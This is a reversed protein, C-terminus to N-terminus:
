YGEDVIQSRPLEIRGDILGTRSYEKQVKYQFKWLKIIRDNTTLMKLVGSNNNVFEIANIKEDLEISKLHDFEPEHSQMETFYRYDFYRSNKLDVYKFVIVRGGLDGVALYNGTKDFSIASLIDTKSINNENREGLGNIYVWNSSNSIGQPNIQAKGQTSAPLYESPKEWKNSETKSLTSLSSNGIQDVEMM